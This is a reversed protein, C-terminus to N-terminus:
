LEETVTISYWHQDTDIINGGKDSINVKQRKAASQGRAISGPRTAPLSCAERYIRRLIAIVYQKQEKTPGWTAAKRTLQTTDTYEM